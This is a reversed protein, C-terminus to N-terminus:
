SYQLINVPGEDGQMEMRMLETVEPFLEGLPEFENNTAVVGINSCHESKRRASRGVYTWNEGATGDPVTGAGKESGRAALTNEKVMTNWKPNEMPINSDVEKERLKNAQETNCMEDVGQSHGKVKGQKSLSPWADEDGMEFMEAVEKAGGSCISSMGRKVAGQNKNTGKNHDKRLRGRAPM